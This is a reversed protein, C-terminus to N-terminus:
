FYYSEVCNFFSMFPICKDADGGNMLPVLEEKGAYCGVPFYIGGNRAFWERYETVSDNGWEEPQAIIHEATFVQFGKNVAGKATALVCSSANIGMLCIHTIKWARLIEALNTENFGNDSCKWITKRRKVNALPEKLADITDGQNKIQLVALPIDKKSYYGIVKTQNKVLKDIRSQSIWKVYPNQMDVLVVGIRAWGDLKDEISRGNSRKVGNNAGNFDRSIQYSLARYLGYAATLHEIAM